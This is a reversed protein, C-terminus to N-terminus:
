CDVLDLFVIAVVTDDLAQFQNPPPLNLLRAPPLNKVNLFFGPLFCPSKRGIKLIIDLIDM